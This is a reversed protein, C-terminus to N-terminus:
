GMEYLGMGDFAMGDWGMGHWHGQEAFTSDHKRNTGTKRSHLSESCSLLLFFHIDCCCSTVILTGHPVIDMTHLNQGIFPLNTKMKWHM